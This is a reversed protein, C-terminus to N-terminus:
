KILIMKKIASFDGASLKYFYLGSPLNSANIQVEYKGANQEKNVLQLTERGRIDYVSLNVKVKEIITYKIKTLPNFPNPYNQNLSFEIPVIENEISTVLSTFMRTESYNSWGFSNGSKVRWWYNRDLEINSYIYSTDTITSDIFATTFQDSTDIEFM